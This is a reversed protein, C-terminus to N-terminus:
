GNGDRSEWQSILEDEKYGFIRGLEFFEKKEQEKTKGKIRGSRIPKPVGRKDRERYYILVIQRMTLKAIESM